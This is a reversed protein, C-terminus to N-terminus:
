NVTAVARLREVLTPGIGPVAMLDELSAFAGAGQRYTVIREALAPGIGPLAVLSAVDAQNLNLLDPEPRPRSPPVVPATPPPTPERDPVVPSLQEELRIRMPRLYEALLRYLLYAVLLGVVLKLFRKM